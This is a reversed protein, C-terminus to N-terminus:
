GILYKYVNNFFMPILKNAVHLKRPMYREYGTRRVFKVLIAQLVFPARLAVRSCAALTKRCQSM